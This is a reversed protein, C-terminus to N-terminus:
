AFPPTSPPQEGGQPPTWGGPAAAPKQYSEFSAAAVPNIGRLVELVKNRIAMSSVVGGVAATSLWAEVQKTVEEAQQPTAGSKVVGNLVKNRDFDELRGDKKQVKVPVKKRVGEWDEM